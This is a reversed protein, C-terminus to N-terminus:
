RGSFSMSNGGLGQNFSNNFSSATPQQTRATSMPQTAARNAYIGLGAGAAQGGLQGLSNWMQSRVAANQQMSANSANTNGVSIDAISGQSLGVQPREIAQGMTALAQRRGFATNSLNGLGSLANMQNGFGEQGANFFAQGSALANTLRNDRLQLSNLGLDRAVIDRGLGLGGGGVNAANAASVRVMQNRVDLPIESGMALDEAARDNAARLLSIDGGGEGSLMAAFRDRLLATTQDEGGMDGLLQRISESRLQAVDPTLENELEISARANVGAIGTAQKNLADIDVSQAKTRGAKAAKSAGVAGIGGVVVAATIAASM